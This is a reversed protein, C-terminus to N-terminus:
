EESGVYRFVQVRQNRSDAIYITNDDSIFIGNPLWFEGPEQGQQGIAILFEGERDFVQVANLLADIVYVHGHSDTAVGKPRAFHGVRDGNEGFEHLFQGADGFRQVRFNLSDTVVLEDQPDFWLYTPFNFEGPGHGRGGFENVLVGNQDFVKISQSGTDTVFLLQHVSDWAVGTPRELEVSTEFKQLYKEGPDAQYIAALQSDAIYIRGDPSTVLGIPSILMERRSIMLCRYRGKDLDYRHVCRADPDAVFITRGNSSTAVAMPRLLADTESGATFSIFRSWASPKFSLESSNSFEGVYAIRKTEPPEPWVLIESTFPDAVPSGSCGALVFAISILLAERVM